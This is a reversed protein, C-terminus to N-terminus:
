DCEQTEKLWTDAWKQVEDMVAELARGKDTLQYTIRVPTEPYVERKVIGEAELEKLREVLMRDSMEPIAESIESFRHRGSLMSRIILGTWRKGLLKFALEFKPCMEACKKRDEM